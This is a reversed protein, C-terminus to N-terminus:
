GFLGEIPAGEALLNYPRNQSDVAELDHIGMAHYVTKAIDAPTVRRDIPYEGLKDSAGYRQGGRIGGGAMVNTM